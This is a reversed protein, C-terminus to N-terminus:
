GVWVNYGNHPPLQLLLMAKVTILLMQLTHKWVLHVCLVPLSPFFASQTFEAGHVAVM